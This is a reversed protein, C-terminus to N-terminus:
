RRHVPQRLEHTHGPRTQSALRKLVASRSLAYFIAKSGAYM